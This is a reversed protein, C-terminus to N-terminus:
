KPGQVNRGWKTPETVACALGCIPPAYIYNRQAVGLKRAYVALTKALCMCVILREWIIKDTSLRSIKTLM